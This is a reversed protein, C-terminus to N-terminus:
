FVQEDRMRSVVGFPGFWAEYDAFWLWGGCKFDRPQLGPVNNTEKYVSDFPIPAYFPDDLFAEVPGRRLYVRPEDLLPVGTPEGLVASADPVAVVHEDTASVYRGAVVIYCFVVVEHHYEGCRGVPYPDCDEREDAAGDAPVAVLTFLVLLVCGVGRMRGPM